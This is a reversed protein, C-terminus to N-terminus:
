REKGKSSVVEKEWRDPGHFMTASAKDEGFGDTLVTVVAGSDRKGIMVQFIRQSPISLSM